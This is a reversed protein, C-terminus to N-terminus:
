LSFQNSCSNSAESAGCYTRTDSYCRTSCCGPRSTRPGCCTCGTARQNAVGNFFGPFMLVLKCFYRCTENTIGLLGALSGQPM